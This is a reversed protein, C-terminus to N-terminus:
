LGMAILLTECNGDGWFCDVADERVFWHDQHMLIM